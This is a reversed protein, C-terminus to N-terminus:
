SYHLCWGTQLFDAHIFVFLQTLLFGHDPSPWHSQTGRSLSYIAASAKPLIIHQPIPQLLRFTFFQTCGGAGESNSGSQFGLIRGLFLKTASSVRERSPCFSRLIKLPFFDFPVCVGASVQTEKKRVEETSQASLKQM